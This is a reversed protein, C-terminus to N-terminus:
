ETLDRIATGTPSTPDDHAAARVADINGLMMNEHETMQAGTQAAKVQGVRAARTLAEAKYEAGAAEGQGKLVSSYASLGIGALSLAGAGGAAGGM